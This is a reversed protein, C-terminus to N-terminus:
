SESQTLGESIWFRLLVSIPRVEKGSSASYVSPPPDRCLVLGAGRRMARRWVAARRPAPSLCRQAGGRPSARRLRAVRWMRRKRPASEGPAGHCDIRMIDTQLFDPSGGAWARAAGSPRRINSSSSSSRRSSSSSIIIISSSIIIIIIIIFILSIVVVILFGSPRRAPPSASAARPARPPARRVSRFSCERYPISSIIVIIIIIIVM